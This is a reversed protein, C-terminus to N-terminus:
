GPRRGIGYWTFGAASLRAPDLANRGDVLVPRHMRAAAAALDLERYQPWDTLLLVADADAVAELPDTFEVLRARTGYQARLRPLAVPDHVHVQAGQALLAEIVRLSPAHDLRDSGPKVSVGWLAVTRGELQGGCHQWLLRFPLEKQAENLALVTDLLPSAAGTGELASQLSMLDQQFGGGAFGCGPQLYHPGIRADSGIGRRVNGIDVGLVAAVNALDNMFSIRLALMGNIALKALEADRPPMSLRPVDPALVADLLADLQAAAWGDEAAVVCRDPRLFNELASGQRLTEPWAAVATRADQGARSERLLAGFRDVAGVGFVVQLVLLLDGRQAALSRARQMALAEEDAEFAFLHLPCPEAPPAASVALRGSARGAQWAEALGPEAVPLRGDLLQRAALPRACALHVDIGRAALATATVLALLGEGHVCAKM